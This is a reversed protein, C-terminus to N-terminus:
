EVRTPFGDGALSHYTGWCPDTIGVAGNNVQLAKTRDTVADYYLPQPTSVLVIDGRRIAAEFAQFKRRNRSIRDLINGRETFQQDPELRKGHEGLFGFSMTNGTMNRLTSYFCAVPTVTSDDIGM